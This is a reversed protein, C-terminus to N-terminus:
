PSASAILTMLRNLTHASLVALPFGLIAILRRHRGSKWIPYVLWACLWASALSMTVPLWYDTAAVLASAVSLCGLVVAAWARIM